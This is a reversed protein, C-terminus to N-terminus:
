GRSRVDYGPAGVEDRILHGIAIGDGRPDRRELEHSKGTVRQHYLATCRSGDDIGFGAAPARRQGAQERGQVPHGKFFHWAVSRQIEAVAPVTDRDYVVSGIWSEQAHVVCAVPDGLNAGIVVTTRMESGGVGHYPVDVEHDVAARRARGGQRVRRFNVPAYPNWGAGAQQTGGGRLPVRQVQIRHAVRSNAPNSEVAFVTGKTVLGEEPEDARVREGERDDIVHALPGGRRRGDLHPVRVNIGEQRRGHVAPGDHEGVRRSDGHAVGAEIGVEGRARRCPDLEGEAGDGERRAADGRAPRDINVDQQGLAAGKRVLVPLVVPGARIHREVLPLPKLEALHREVLVLNDEM